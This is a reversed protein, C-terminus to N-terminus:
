NVEKWQPFREEQSANKGDITDANGKNATLSTPIDDLTALRKGNKPDRFPPWDDETKLIGLVEM